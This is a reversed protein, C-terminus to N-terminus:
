FLNKIKFLLSNVIARCGILNEFKDLFDKKCRCDFENNIQNDWKDPKKSGIAFIYVSTKRFNSFNLYLLTVGNVEFLNKITLPTFRWYDGYDGHMPQLFPIVIIVIDKSLLCLNKFAKRIEYIHELTTHNFVVDFQNIYKKDLEDVLDLYFENAIGQLGMIESKYNSIYYRNANIFYNKYFKGEKDM